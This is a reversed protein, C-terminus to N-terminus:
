KDNLLMKMQKEWKLLTFKNEWLRYGESGMKLAIEPNEILYCLRKFYDLPELKDVIFGSKEHIVSEVAGGCNSIVCPIRHCMAGLIAIGQSEEKSLQLYIDSIQYYKEVNDCVGLFYLNPYNFTEIKCEEFLKGDGLWLFKVSIGFKSFSLAALKIFLDPRKNYDLTGISLVIKCNQFDILSPVNINNSAAYYNPVISIKTGLSFGWMDIIRNKAANSVTIFRLNKIFLYFRIFLKNVTDLQAWLMAHVIYFSKISIISIFLFHGPYQPTIWVKKIKEKLIINQFFLVNPLLNDIIYLFQFGKIKGYYEFHIFDTPLYVTNFSYLKSLNNIVNLNKFDTVITIEDYNASCYKLLNLFYTHTGTFETFEVILLLGNKKSKVKICLNYYFYKILKFIRSLYKL